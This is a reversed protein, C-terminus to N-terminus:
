RKYLRIIDSEIIWFFGNRVAWQTVVELRPYSQLGEAFLRADDIYIVCKSLRQLNNEIHKLEFSVPCIDEGQFTANYIDEFFHGDLWLAVSGNLKGLIEGLVDETKGNIVEVNSDKFRKSANLYLEPSPEITFVKQKCHRSLFSATDGKYTGSEIWYDVDGSYKVLYKRKLSPPLPGVYGRKFWDYYQRIKWYVTKM